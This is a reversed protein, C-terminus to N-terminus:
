LMDIFYLFISMVARRGSVAWEALAGRWALRDVPGQRMLAADVCCRIMGARGFRRSAADLCRSAAFRETHRTRWRSGSLRRCRPLSRRTRPRSAKPRRRTIPSTAYSESTAKPLHQPLDEPVRGVVPDPAHDLGDLRRPLHRADRHMDFYQSKRPSPANARSEDFTYVTSVGDM